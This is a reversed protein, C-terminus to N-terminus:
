KNKNIKRLPVSPFKPPSRASSSRAFGSRQCEGAALLRVIQSFTPEEFDKTVEKPSVFGGPLSLDKFGLPLPVLLPQQLAGGQESHVVISSPKPNLSIYEEIGLLFPGMRLAAIISVLLFFKWNKSLSSNPGTPAPTFWCGGICWNLILGNLGNQPHVLVM